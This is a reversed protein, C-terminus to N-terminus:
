SNLRFSSLCPATPNSPMKASPTHRPEPSMTITLVTPVQIPTAATTPACNAGGAGQQSMGAAWVAQDVVVDWDMDCATVQGSQPLGDDIKSDINYAQQVTMANAGAGAIGTSEMSWGIKQVLQVVFYNIGNLSRIYIFNGNGLKAAPLWNSISPTGTIQICCPNPPGSTNPQNTGTPISADILGATSLDQWFVAFEGCGQASNTNQGAANWCNGEIVGNGDGEGAYQGRSQFGYQIAAPNPIDGPLYGNYKNQFNIVATNYQSIQSLQASIKAADKLQKGTLVGGIIAGIIILAISMQILTFGQKTNKHQRMNIASISIFHRL